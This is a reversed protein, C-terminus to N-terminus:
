FRGIVGLQYTTMEYSADSIDVREYSASLGLHSNIYYKANAGYRYENHDRDSRGFGGLLGLSLASNLYYDGEFLLTRLDAADEEEFNTYEFRGKLSLAREEEFQLLHKYNVALINADKEDGDVQTAQGVHFNFTLLGTDAVYTGLQLLVDDVESEAGSNSYNELIYHAGFLLGSDNIYAGGFGYTGVDVNGHRPNGYGLLGFFSSSRSIFAAEALPGNSDDVDSFYYTGRFNIGDYGGGSGDDKGVYSFDTEARYTEAMAGTGAILLATLIVKKM